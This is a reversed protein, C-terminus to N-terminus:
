PYPVRDGARVPDAGRVGDPHQGRVRAAPAHQARGRGAAVPLRRRRAGRGPRRRVRGDPLRGRHAPKGARGPGAPEDRDRGARAQRQRHVPGRARQRCRRGAQGGEGGAPQDPDGAPGASAAEEEYQRGKVYTRAIWFVSLVLVIARIPWRLWPVQLGTITAFSDSLTIGSFWYFINIAVSAWIAIMVTTSLGLLAQLAYFLGVSGVFFLALRLYVEPLALGPHNVLLFFGLVYGPLASVFLKRPATWDPRARAPGGPLRRQAPLRLLEEHLGRLAPLPQQSGERVADPRVRAAPAAAPLHQQVLREQGQVRSGRHLRRHDDALAAREPGGRQSNFFAIRTSTIGFFLVISILAGYRRLWDPPTLARTFSFGRPAQNSAALPCINRWLGPATFFLIPLLPVIM